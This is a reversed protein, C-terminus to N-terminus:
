MKKSEKVDWSAKIMDGTAGDLYFPEGMSNNMITHGEKDVGVVQVQQIDAQGFKIHMDSSKKATTKAPKDLLESKLKITYNFKTFEEATIFKMDGTSPDITFIESKKNKYVTSGNSIGVMSLKEAITIKIFYNSGRAAQAVVPDTKAAQAYIHSTLGQLAFIAASAVLVKSAAKSQKKIESKKM